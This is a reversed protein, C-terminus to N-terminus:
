EAASRSAAQLSGYQLWISRLSATIPVALFIGIAGWLFGWYMMALMVMLPSMDTRPGITRPILFNAYVLHIGLCLSVFLVSTEVTTFQTVAIVVPPLVSLIAGVFPLVNLLTYILAWIFAGEVGYTVFLLWAIVFVIATSLLYGQVFGRIKNSIDSVIRDSTGQVFTNSLNTRAGLYGAIFFRIQQKERLLFYVLFPFFSIVILYDYVPGLNRFMIDRWTSYEEIVMPKQQPATPLITKGIDESKKEFALIRKRIDYSVKQIRKSYKPLNQSFDQARELFLGVLSGLVLGAVLLSTTIALGRPIRLRRLQVVLPDLLYAAMIALVVTIIVTAGFYCIASFAAFAIIRISVGRSAAEM